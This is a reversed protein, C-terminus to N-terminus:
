LKGHLTYRLIIILRRSYLHPPNSALMLLRHTKENKLCINDQIDLLYYELVIYLDVKM